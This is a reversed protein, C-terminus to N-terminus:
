MSVLQVHQVPHLRRARRAQPSRAAAAVSAVGPPAVTGGAHGDGLCACDARVPVARARRRHSRDRATRPRPVPARRARLLARADRLRDAVRSVGDVHEIEKFDQRRLRYLVSGWFKTNGGVSYHTYPLFERGREDLWRESNRYRLHKWVAEPSWNEDEQPVFGGRELILIRASSSALAHAITGGGAGSGIIIVDYRQNPM